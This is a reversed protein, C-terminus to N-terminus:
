GDARASLTSTSRASLTLGNKLTTSLNYLVVSWGACLPAGFCGHSESEMFWVEDSAEDRDVVGWHIGTEARVKGAVDLAHLPDVLRGHGALGLGIFDEFGIHLYWAM